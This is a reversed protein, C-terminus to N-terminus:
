FSLKIKYAELFQSFFFFACCLHTVLRTVYINKYEL